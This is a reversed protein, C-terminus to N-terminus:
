LVFRQSYDLINYKIDTRPSRLPSLANAAKSVRGGRLRQGRMDADRREQDGRTQRIKIHPPQGKKKKWFMSKETSCLNM